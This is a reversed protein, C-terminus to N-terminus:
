ESASWLFCWLEADSARTRPIWRPGTFEGCLHGTVRFINGNSSTMMIPTNSIRVRIKTDGKWKVTQKLAQKSLFVGDASQMVSGKHPFDMLSWHIRWLFRAYYFFTNGESLTMTSLMMLNFRGIVPVWRNQLCQGINWDSDSHGSCGEDHTSQQSWPKGDSNFCASYQRLYRNGMPSGPLFFVRRQFLNNTMVATWDVSDNKVNHSSPWQRPCLNNSTVTDDSLHTTPTM